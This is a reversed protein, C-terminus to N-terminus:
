KGAEVPQGVVLGPEPAVRTIITVVNCLCQTRVGKVEDIQRSEQIAACCACCWWCLCDTCFDPRGGLKRKINGRFTALKIAILAEFVYVLDYNAATAYIVAAVEPPLAVAVLISFVYMGVIPFLAMGLGPWFSINGVGHQLDAVLQPWCCFGYLCYDCDHGWDCIDYKFGKTLRLDQPVTALAISELPPKKTTVRAKVCCAALSELALFIFFNGVLFVLNGAVFGAPDEAPDEAAQSEDGPEEADALLRGRHRSAGFSPGEPHSAGFSVGGWDSRLFPESGLVPAFLPWISQRFLDSSCLMVAFHCARLFAFM